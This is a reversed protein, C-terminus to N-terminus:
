FGETDNGPTEGNDDDPAPTAPIGEPKDGGVLFSLLNGVFVENDADYLESTRIFDTDSVFVVSDTRVVMPYTGGRRSNLTRTGDAASYLVEADSSGNVVVYGAYDFTIEEVGATLEDDTVPEADVSRFNNDTAEDNMNYLADAGIRVGYNWSMDNAAFTVRDAAAIVGGSVVSQTPEGLVLVRGDNETFNALALREGTSFGETPFIVLVADYPRLTTNYNGSGFEDDSSSEFDVDHGAATLAEVVPEIEYQDFRNSHATDILIRKHGEEASVSLTGTEPDVQPNVREPAFQGPSQGSIDESDPTPTPDSTTALSAVATGGVVVIVILVFVGLPKAMEAPRM